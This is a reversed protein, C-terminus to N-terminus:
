RLLTVDQYLTGERIKGESDMWKYSIAAVYVGTQAPQDRYNGDWMNAPDKSESIIAGYRSYITCTLELLNCDSFFTLRDNIGDRNPSFAGPLFVPCEACAIREVRFEYTVPTVCDGNGARYIGPLTLERRSGAYSDDWSFIPSPLTVTWTEGCTLTTDRRILNGEPGPSCTERFTADFPEVILDGVNLRQLTTPSIDLNLDSFNLVVDNAKSTQVNEWSFCDSTPNDPTFQMLFTGANESQSNFLDENGAIVITNNEGISQYVSSSRFYREFVLQQEQLMDGRPSVALRRLRNGEAEPAIYSLLLRGDPHLSLDPAADTAPFQKTQWLLEGDQNIQYLFSHDDKHLAFVYGGPTEVPGAAHRWVAETQLRKTWQPAGERDFKLLYSGSRCMFGGDRTLIAEGNSDFPRLKKGWQFDLREDFVALFGERPTTWGKLLGYAMLRGNKLDLSFAFHDVTEPELFLFRRIKGEGDLKLMFILEDAGVFASGYLFVEERANIFFDKLELYEERRGYSNSWKVQGCNDMRTLYIRGDRGTLQAELSSDGILIDGEPFRAIKQHVYRGAEEQVKFYQQSSVPPIWMMMCFAWLGAIYQINM